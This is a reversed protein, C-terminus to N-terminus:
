KSEEWDLDLIELVDLQYRPYPYLKSYKDIISELEEISFYVALVYRMEIFDKVQLVFRRKKYSNLKWM